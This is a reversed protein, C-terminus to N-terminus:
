GNSAHFEGVRTILGEDILAASGEYRRRDAFLELLLEQPNGGTLYKRYRLQCDASRQVDALVEKAEAELGDVLKYHLLAGTYKSIRAPTINHSSRLFDIGSSVKVLPTKTLEEGTGFVIRAGGRINQYPCVPAANKFHTPLYFQYQSVFDPKGSFSKTNTDRDSFMDLMFSTFAESSQGELVEILDDISRNECGDFVLAEDADVYLAWGDASYTNKLFNLWVMGAFAGVYSDLTSFLTVDPQDLLCDVSGDTSGNDVFVFNRVGLKRYYDLFWHLRIRENKVATYLVLSNKPPLPNEDLRKLNATKGDEVQPIYHLRKRMRWIQRSEDTKRELDKRWMALRMTEPRHNDPLKDIEEIAENHHSCRILADILKVRSPVHEQDLKSAAKASEAHLSLWEQGGSIAYKRFECTSKMSWLKAVSLRPASTEIDSITNRLFDMARDYEGNAVFMQSRLLALTSRKYQGQREDLIRTARDFETNNILSEIFVTLHLDTAEERELLASWRSVALSRWKAASATRALEFDIWDHEPYFERHTNLEQEVRNFQGSGILAQARIRLLEISRGGKQASLHSLIEKFRSEIMLCRITLNEAIAGPMTPDSEILSFAKVTSFQAIRCRIEWFLSKERGLIPSVSELRNLAITYRGAKVASDVLLELATADPSAQHLEFAWMAAADDDRGMSLLVEDFDAVAEARQGPDVALSMAARLEKIAELPKEVAVFEKAKRTREHALSFM